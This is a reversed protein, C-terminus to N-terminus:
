GSSAQVLRKAVLKLQVLANAVAPTQLDQRFRIKQVLNRITDLKEDHKSLVAATGPTTYQYGKIQSAAMNLLGTTAAAETAIDIPNKNTVPTAGRSFLALFM